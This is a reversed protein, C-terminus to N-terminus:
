ALLTIIIGTNIILMKQIQKKVEEKSAKEKAEDVVPEEESVEEKVEDAAKEEM